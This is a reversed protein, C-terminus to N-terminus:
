VYLLFLVIFSGKNLRRKRCEALFCPPSIRCHGRAGCPGLVTPYLGLPYLWSVIRVGSLTLGLNKDKRFTKLIEMQFVTFLGSNTLIWLIETKYTEFPDCDVQRWGARDQAAAEMKRWSYKYGAATQGCKNRWIEEGLIGQDGEEETAKHHESYRRNPSATMM